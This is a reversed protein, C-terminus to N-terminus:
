LGTLVSAADAAMLVAAGGGKGLLRDGCWVSWHLGRRRRPTGPRERVHVGHLGDPVGMTDPTVVCGVLLSDVERGSEVLVFDGGGIARQDGTAPDVIEVVRVLQTM